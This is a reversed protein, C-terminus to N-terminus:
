PQNKGWWLVRAVLITMMIMSGLAANHERHKRYLAWSFSTGGPQASLRPLLRPVRRAYDEFEPFRVRLFEEEARIVPVYILLFFLVLCVSIWINRGAIAFGAALIVSGLYLPNRSYAYPGSTTLEENKRVYGSALARIILGIVVLVSGTLISVLSPRSLWVYFVAFLFGLPVRTRRAIREWSPV